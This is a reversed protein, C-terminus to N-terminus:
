KTFDIQNIRNEIETWVQQFEKSSLLEPDGNLFLSKNKEYLAILDALSLESLKKM